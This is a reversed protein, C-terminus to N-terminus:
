ADAVEPESPLRRLVRQIAQLLPGRQEYGQEGLENLGLYIKRRCRRILGLTLRYLAEQRTEFEDADSWVQNAHSTRRGNEAPPWQRSLVYPHTLPQYLREWWGRSGANLWFQYDVPRNSMLFTYAPALLVADQPQLQWSHIYQAAVVGDQVM